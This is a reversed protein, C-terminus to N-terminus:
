RTAERSGLRMMTTMAVNWRELEHPTFFAQPLHREIAKRFLVTGLNFIVPHLAAWQLDLDPRLRGEEALQDWQARAIAVFADFLDLAAEDEEVIARAAYRLADPQQGVLSTIRDGLETFPDADSAALPLDAFPSAVLTIVHANVADRLAAKNPFHHQVLGPSVGAAKAIARVSSAKVGDQAFAELAANRIRAYATLDSLPAANAPAM